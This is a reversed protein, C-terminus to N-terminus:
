PKRRLKKTLGNLWHSGPKPEPKAPKRLFAPVDAPGQEHEDRHEAKRRKKIM